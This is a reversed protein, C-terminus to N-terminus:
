FTQLSFYQRSTTVTQKATCPAMLIYQFSADQNLHDYWM